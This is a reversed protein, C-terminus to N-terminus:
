DGKAKRIAEDVSDYIVDLIEDLGCSCAIHFCDPTLGMTHRICGSRHEVYGPFKKIYTELEQIRMNLDRIIGMNDRSSYYDIGVGLILGSLTCAVIM